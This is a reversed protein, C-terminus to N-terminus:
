RGLVAFIIEPKLPHILLEKIRSKTPLIDASWNEGGDASRHLQNAAAAFIIRSNGPPVAAANVPLAEPPILVNLREWAFGGNTSRLLGEQSGIYLTTFINPDPVFAQLSSRRSIGAFLNFTSTPPQFGSPQIGATQKKLGENLDAWNKGGDFTKFLNGSATIVFMEGSFVPNVILRTLAESFWKLVRWTKGGNRTELLGGQGTATLVRDPDSPNVYIDFVGFRNATVFYVERWTEGGDESRFVRGRSAQFAAIYMVQPHSRSIAIKYVDASPDLTRAKDGTKRWSKGGNASKWLGSSKSGLFIIDPDGPHFAFALIQSPFRIRKDESVATNEWIEGGDPSRLMGEGVDVGGAGGIAGFQFIRIGAMNLVFPLVLVLGLIIVLIILVIKLVM